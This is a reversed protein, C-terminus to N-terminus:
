KRKSSTDAIKPIEFAELLFRATLIIIRFMFSESIMIQDGSYQSWLLLLFFLFWSITSKKRRIKWNYVCANDDDKRVRQEVFSLFSFQIKLKRNTENRVRECKTLRLKKQILSNSKKKKQESRQRQFTPQKKHKIHCLFFLAWHRNPILKILSFFSAFLFSICCIPPCKKPINQKHSQNNRDFFAVNIRLLRFILVRSLVYWAFACFILQLVIAGVNLVFNKLRNNQSHTM